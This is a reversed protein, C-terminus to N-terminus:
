TKTASCKISTCVPTSELRPALTKSAPWPPGKLISSGAACASLAQLAAIRAPQTVVTAPLVTSSSESCGISSSPKLECASTSIHTCGDCSVSRSRRDKRSQSAPKAPIPASRTISRLSLLLAPAPPHTIAKRTTSEGPDSRPTSVLAASAIPTTCSASAAAPTAPHRM